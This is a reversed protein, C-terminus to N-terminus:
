QHIGDIGPIGPISGAVGLRIGIIAGTSTTTPLATVTRLVQMTAQMPASTVPSAVHVLILNTTTIRRATTITLLVKAQM